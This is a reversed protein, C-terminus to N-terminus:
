GAAAVLGAAHLGHWRQYPGRRRLLEQPPGNEVLRGAEIVLVRDPALAGTLRHSIVFATRGALLGRLALNVAQESAADLHATAEDFILIRPDRLLARAIALRQREGGSLRSGCAGLPTDYGQPLRRIFEDAQAARAAAEIAGRDSSPNGYAINDAISGELLVPDQLVVAIQRRLAAPELAALDLGDILIRGRQPDHLRLLLDMLTTKGGGSSGVIAVTEGAEVTFSVAELAPPRACDGAAFTFSVDEFTVQGRLRGLSPAVILAAPEANALFNLVAQASVMGRAIAGSAAALGALPGYLLAAYSIAAVWGGLTLRHDIVLAAGYGAVAVRGAVALVNRVHGYGEDCGVLRWLRRFIARAGRRYTDVEAAENALSKVTKIANLVESVRAYLRSWGEQVAEEHRMLGRAGAVTALLFLPMPLVAIWALAPALRYLLVTMLLLNAANPLLTQLVDAVLQGFAAVGRDLRTLVYGAACQQHFALPQSYLHALVDSSLVFSSRFRVRNVLLTQLSALLRQLVLLGAWGALVAALAHATRAARAGASARALLDLLYRYFQPEVATAAGAAIGAAAALAICVVHPRWRRALARIPWGPLM